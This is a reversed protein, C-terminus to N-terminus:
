KKWHVYSEGELGLLKKMYQEAEYRLCKDKGDSCSFTSLRFADNFFLFAEMDKGNDQALRGLNIYAQNRITKFLTDKDALIGVLTAKRVEEIVFDYRSNDRIYDTYEDAIKDVLNAYHNAQEAIKKLSGADQAQIDKSFEQEASAIIEEPDPLLVGMEQLQKTREVELDNISQANITTALILSLVFAGVARVTLRKFMNIKMLIMRLSGFFLGM